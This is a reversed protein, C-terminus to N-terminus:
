SSASWTTQQQVVVVNENREGLVVAIDDAELRRQDDFARVNVVQDLTEVVEERTAYGSDDPVIEPLDLEVM